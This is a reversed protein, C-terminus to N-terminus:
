FVHVSRNNISKVMHSLTYLLRIFDTNELHGPKLGSKYLWFADKLKRDLVSAYLMYNSSSKGNFSQYSCGHM